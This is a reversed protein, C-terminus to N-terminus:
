IQIIDCTPIYHLPIHKDNQTVRMDGHNFGPAKRTKITFYKKVIRQFEKDKANRKQSEKAKEQKMQETLAELRLYTETKLDEVTRGFYASLDDFPIRSICM